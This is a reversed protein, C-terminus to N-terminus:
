NAIMYRSTSDVRVTAHVTNIHTRLKQSQGGATEVLRWIFWEGEDIVDDDCRSVDIRLTPSVNFRVRGREPARVRRGEVRVGVSDGELPTLVFDHDESVAAPPVMFEGAGSQLTGGTAGIRGVVSDPRLATHACVLPTGPTGVEIVEEAPPLLLQATPHCGSSILFAAVAVALRTRRVTRKM